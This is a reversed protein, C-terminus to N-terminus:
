KYHMVYEQVFKYIVVLSMLGYKHPLNFYDVTAFLLAMELFFNPFYFLYKRNGEKSFFYTGIFRYLLLGILVYNDFASLGGHNLIYFLLITYCISDTIKDSLQYAASECGVWKRFFMTHFSVTCDLLDSIMILIIKIFLPVFLYLIIITVVVRLLQSYYLDRTKMSHYFYIKIGHLAKVHLVRSM